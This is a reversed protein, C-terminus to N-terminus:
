IKEVLINADYYKWDYDWKDNDFHWKLDDMLRTIDAIGENLTPDTIAFVKVEYPVTTGVAVIYTEKDWDDLSIHLENKFYWYLAMWYFALQRHYAYEKVKEKFSYIHFSTKLDILQVIKKEYDIVLRDILSKCKLGNPYEWYIAFENQIFLKDSNGFVAHEDNFLLERARIHNRLNLKTENLQDLMHTPLIATYMPSTKTYKIFEAYQKELAKAKELIKEDSEKTTYAVKYAEVLKEDKKGKKLRAFKECFLKQQTSKPKDYNLFTYEKDFQEPELIYMHIQQGKEFYSKKEEPLEGDFKMKFYKPSGEKLWSLSSNSVAKVDYYNKM